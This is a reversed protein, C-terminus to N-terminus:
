GRRRFPNIGIDNMNFGAKVASRYSESKKHIESKSVDVKVVVSNEHVEKNEKMRVSEGKVKEESKHVEVILKNSEKIKLPSSKEKIEGKVKDNECISEKSIEEGCKAIIESDEKNIQITNSM